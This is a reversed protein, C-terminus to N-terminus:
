HAYQMTSRQFGMREQLLSTYIIRTIIERYVHIMLSFIGDWPSSSYYQTYHLATGIEM